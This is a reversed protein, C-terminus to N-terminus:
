LPAEAFFLDGSQIKVRCASAVREFDKLNDTVLTVGARRCTVALLVDNFLRVKEEPSFRPTQGHNERKARASLRSLAKGAEWWDEKTPVLLVGDKEARARLADLIKMVHSDVASAQLETLVLSCVYTDEGFALTPRSIYINTDFCTKM